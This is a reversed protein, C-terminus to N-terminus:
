KLLDQLKQDKVIMNLTKHLIPEFIKVQVVTDNRYSLNDIIKYGHLILIRLDGDVILRMDVM